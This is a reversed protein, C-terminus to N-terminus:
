LPVNLEGTYSWTSDGYATRIFHKMKYLTKIICAEINPHFGLRQTVLSSIPYVIRDFCNMSDMAIFSCNTKNFRLEDFVMIKVLAAEILRNGKETYQSLPIAGSEGGVGMMRISFHLSSNQNFDAEPYRYYAVRITLHKKKLLVNLDFAWRELPERLNFAMNSVQNVTKFLPLDYTIEKNHCPLTLRKEERKGTLSQLRFHFNLIM